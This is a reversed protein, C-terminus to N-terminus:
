KEEQTWDKPDSRARSLDRWSEIAELVFRM